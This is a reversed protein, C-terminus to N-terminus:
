WRRFLQYLWVFLLCDAMTLKPRSPLRQRLVSLQHRMVVEAELRAQSKFSSVLLHLPLILFGIM